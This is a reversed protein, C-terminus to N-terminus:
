RLSERSNEADRVAKAASSKRYASPTLGFKKVFVKCFYNQDPYGCRDAVERVPKATSRLLRQASRMRVDTLYESIGIGYKAKFAKIAATRSCFLKLCIGDITIKRNYNEEVYRRIKDSLESRSVFFRNSLTIYRACIDLIKMCSLIRDKECVCVEHSARELSERDAHRLGSQVIANRSGPSGDITQGMMLYGVLNGLVYLPAIAEYLGFRCKYLYVTRGKRVHEFAQSDNERCLGRGSESNQILRCYPSIDRPYSEIERFRTDHVSLRFGSLNHLERLIAQLEMQEDKM